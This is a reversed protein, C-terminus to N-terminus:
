VNESGMAGDLIWWEFPPRDMKESWRPIGAEVHKKHLEGIRAIYDPQFFQHYRKDITKFIDIASGGCYSHFTKGTIGQLNKIAGTIGM